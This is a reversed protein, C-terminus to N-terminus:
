QDQIPGHHEDERHREESLESPDEVGSPAEEYFQSEYHHGNPLEGRTYQRHEDVWLNYSEKDMPIYHPSELVAKFTDRGRGDSLDEVKSGDASCFYYRTIKRPVVLFNPLLPNTRWWRHVFAGWGDLHWLEQECGPTYDALAVEFVSKGQASLADRVLCSSFDESVTRIISNGVLKGALPFEGRRM